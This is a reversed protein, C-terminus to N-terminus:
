KFLESHSGTRILILNEKTLKYILLWDPEIHCERTQRYNGTLAHDRYKEDLSKGEAIKGIIERLKAADKGAKKIKKVDRKFQSTISLNRM